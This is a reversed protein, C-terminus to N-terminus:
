RNSFDDWYEKCINGLFDITLERMQQDFVKIDACKLYLIGGCYNLSSASQNCFVKLFDEEIAASLIDLEAQFIDKLDVFYEQELEVPDMWPVLALREIKFLELFFFDFSPDIRESLYQCGIKLTLANKDGAWSVITGDHLIEFVDKIKELNKLRLFNYLKEKKENKRIPIV